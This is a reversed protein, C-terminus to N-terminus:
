LFCKIVFHCAWTPREHGQAWLSPWWYNNVAMLKCLNTSPRALKNGTPEVRTFYANNEQVQMFLFSSSLNPKNGKSIAHWSQYEISFSNIPLDKLRFMKGGYSEQTKTEQIYKVYPLFVGHRWELRSRPMSQESLAHSYVNVGPMRYNSSILSTVFLDDTIVSIGQIHQLFYSPVM